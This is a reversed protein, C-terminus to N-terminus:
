PLWHHSLLGDLTLVDKSGAEFHTLRNAGVRSSPLNQVSAPAINAMSLAQARLVNAAEDM